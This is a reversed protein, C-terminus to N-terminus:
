EYRLITPDGTFSDGLCFYSELLKELLTQAVTEEQTLIVLLTSQMRLRSFVFVRIFRVNVDDEGVSNVSDIILMSPPEETSDGLCSTLGQALGSDLSRKRKPVNQSM